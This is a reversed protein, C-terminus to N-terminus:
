RYALRDGSSEHCGHRELDVSRLLLTQMRMGDQTYCVALM